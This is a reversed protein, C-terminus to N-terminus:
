LQIYFADAAITKSTQEDIIITCTTYILEGGTLILIYSYSDGCDTSGM